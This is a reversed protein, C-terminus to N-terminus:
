RGQIADLLAVDKRHPVETEFGRKIGGCIAKNGFKNVLQCLALSYIVIRTTLSLVKGSRWPIHHMIHEVVPDVHPADSELMIIEFTM